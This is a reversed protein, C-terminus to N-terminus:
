QLASPKIPQCCALGENVGVVVSNARAAVTTHREKGTMLVRYDVISCGAAMGVARM